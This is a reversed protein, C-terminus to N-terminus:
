QKLQQLLATVAPNSSTDATLTLDAAAFSAHMTAKVMDVVAKKVKSNLCSVFASMLALACSINSGATAQLHEAMVQGLIGVGVSNSRVVATIFVIGPLSELEQVSHLAEGEAMRAIAHSQPNMARDIEALMKGFFISVTPHPVFSKTVETIAHAIAATLVQRIGTSAADSTGPSQPSGISSPPMPAHCIIRAFQSFLLSVQVNWTPYQVQYQACAASHLRLALRLLGFYLASDRGNTNGDCCFELPTLITSVLDPHPLDTLSLTNNDSLGACFAYAQEHLIGLSVMDSVTVVLSAIITKSACILLAAESTHHLASGFQRDMIDALTIVPKL